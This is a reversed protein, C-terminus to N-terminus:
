LVMLQCCSTIPREAEPMICRVVGGTLEVVVEVQIPAEMAVGV